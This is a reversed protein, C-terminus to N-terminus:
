GKEHVQLIEYKSVSTLHSLDTQLPGLSTEKLASRVFFGEWICNGEKECFGTSFLTNSVHNTVLKLLQNITSAALGGQIEVVLKMIPENQDFEIFRMMQSNPNFILLIHCNTDKLIPNQIEPFISFWKQFKEKTLVVAHTLM